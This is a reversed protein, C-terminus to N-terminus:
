IKTQVSWKRWEDAQGDEVEKEMTWNEETDYDMRKTWNEKVLWGEKLERFAKRILEDNSLVVGNNERENKEAFSWHKNLSKEVEEM